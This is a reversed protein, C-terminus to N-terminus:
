KRKKKKRELKVEEKVVEKEKKILPGFMDLLKGEDISCETQNRKYQLLMENLKCSYNGLGSSYFEKYAIIEVRARLISNLGGAIRKAEYFDDYINEVRCGNICNGREDFVPEVLVNNIFDYPIVVENEHISYCPSVIYGKPIENEIEDIKYDHSYGALITYKIEFDTNM